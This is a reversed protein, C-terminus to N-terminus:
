TPVTYATAEITFRLLAWRSNDDYGQELQWAVVSWDTVTATATDNESQDERVEALYAFATSRALAVNAEDKGPAFAITHCPVRYVEARSYDGINDPSDDATIADDGLVIAATGEDDPGVPGSVVNVGALGSRAALSARLADLFDPLTSDM